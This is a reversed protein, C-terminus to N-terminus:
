CLKALWSPLKTDNGTQEREAAAAPELLNLKGGHKPLSSKTDISTDGLEYFDFLELNFKNGEIPAESSRLSRAVM